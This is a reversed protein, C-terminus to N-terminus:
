QKKVWGAGRNPWSWDGIMKVKEETKPKYYPNESKQIPKSKPLKIEPM